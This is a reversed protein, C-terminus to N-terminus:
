RGKVNEQFIETDTQTHHERIILNSPVMYKIDLIQIKDERETDQKSQVEEEEVEVEDIQQVNSDITEISVRENTPRNKPLLKSDTSTRRSISESQYKTNPIMRRLRSFFKTKLNTELQLMLTRM